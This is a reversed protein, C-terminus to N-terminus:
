QAAAASEGDVKEEEALPRLLEDLAVGKAEAKAKLKQLIQGTSQGVEIATM